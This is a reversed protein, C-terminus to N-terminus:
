CQHQKQLSTIQQVVSMQNCAQWESGQIDKQQHIGSWHDCMDSCTACDFVCRLSKYIVAANFPFSHEGVEFHSDHARCTLSMLCDNDCLQQLRRCNTKMYHLAPWNNEAAFGPIKLSLWSAKQFRPRPITPLMKVAAAGVMVTATAAFLGGYAVLGVGVLAQQGRSLPPLSPSEANSSTSISEQSGGVDERAATMCESAARAAEPAVETSPAQHSM